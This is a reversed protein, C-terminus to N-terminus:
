RQPRRLRRSAVRTMAVTVFFSTAISTASAPEPVHRYFYVTGNSGILIDNGVMDLSLGFQRTWEEGPSPPGPTLKEPPYDLGWAGSKQDFLFAADTHPYGPRSALVRHGDLAVARGFEGAAYRADRDGEVFTSALQWKGSQDKSVMRIAGCDDCNVDGYLPQGFVAADLGLSVNGVGGSGPTMRAVEAWEGSLTAEFFYIRGANFRPSPADWQLASVVATTGYISLSYGFLDNGDVDSGQLKAVQNWNGNGQDKFIYAAGQGDFSDPAGVMAYDGFLSVTAGFGAVNQVDNPKLRALQSWQGAGDKQFIYASGVRDGDTKDWRSGILATNGYLDVASGFGDGITSVTPILNSMKQWPGAGDSEFVIATGPANSFEPPPGPAGLLANHGSVAVSTGFNFPSVELSSATVRQVLVAANAPIAAIAVVASFAITSACSFNRFQTM